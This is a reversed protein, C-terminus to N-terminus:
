GEVVEMLKDKYEEYIFVTDDIELPTDGITDMAKDNIGDILVEPMINMRAACSKIDQGHLILSLAEKEIQTLAAKFDSWGDSAPIMVPVIPAINVPERSETEGGEPVLLKEQTKLAEKRIHALNSDDVSVTKWSVHAYYQAVGEKIEESFDIGLGRLREKDVAAYSNLNVSLKYKFREKVRLNAEMEKIMYGVLQRGHDTLVATKYIWRESRCEYEERTSIGVVRDQQRLAPYFIARDFPIWISKKKKLDFVYDEFCKNKEECAKRLRDLVFYFCDNILQKNKENYFVSKKIDYQSISSYLEFSDEPGSLYGFVTPYYAQLNHASVFEEFTTELPYYVHYDKIWGLLYKDLVPAYERFVLWFGVLKDLGEQPDAVGINNILEYVYLFAYSVSTEAIEGNRVKTRWTIYTRLQSYGMLQYCPFYSEFSVENDYYDDVDRTIRALKYFSGSRDTIGYSSQRITHYLDRMKDHVPIVPQAMATPAAQGNGPADIDIEVFTDNGPEDLTPKIQHDSRLREIVRQAERNPISFSEYM